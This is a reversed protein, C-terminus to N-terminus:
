LGAPTNLRLPQSNSSSQPLLSNWNVLPLALAPLLSRQGRMGPGSQIVSRRARWNERQRTPSLEAPSSPPWARLSKANRQLEWHKEEERPFAGPLARAGGKQWRAVRYTLAKM